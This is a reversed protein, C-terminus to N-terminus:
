GYLILISELRNRETIEKADEIKILVTENSLVAEWITQGEQLPSAEFCEWNEQINHVKDRLNTIGVVIYLQGSYEIIRLQM